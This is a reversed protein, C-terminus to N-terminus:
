GSGIHQPADRQRYKAPSQYDGRRRCLSFSHREVAFPRQPLPAPCLLRLTPAIILRGGTGTSPQQPLPAPCLLWLTPAIILRGGTGTSPQQPLPAPCLLRLTPAIILRGGTGTIINLSSAPPLLPSKSTGGERVQEITAANRQREHPENRM